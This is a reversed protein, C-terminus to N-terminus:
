IKLVIGSCLFCSAIGVALMLLPQRPECAGDRVSMAMGIEREVLQAVVDAGSRGIRDQGANDIHLRRRQALTEVGGM